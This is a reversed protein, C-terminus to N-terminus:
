APPSRARHRAGVQELRTRSLGSRFLLPSTLGWGLALACWSALAFPTSAGTAVGAVVLLGAVAALRERRAESRTRREDVAPPAVDRTGVMRAQTEAVLAAHPTGGAVEGAARGLAHAGLGETWGHLSTHAPTREGAVGWAVQRLSRSGEAYDAALHEIVALGYRKRPLIDLPLVRVRGACRDCCALVLTALVAVVTPVGCADRELLFVRRLVTSGTLRLRGGERRCAEDRAVTTRWSSNGKGFGGRTRVTLFTM